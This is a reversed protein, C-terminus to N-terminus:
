LALDCSGLSWVSFFFFFPCVFLFTAVPSQRWSAQKVRGGRGGGDSQGGQKSVAESPHNPLSPPSTLCPYSTAPQTVPQSKPDQLPFWWGKVERPNGHIVIRLERGRGREWM